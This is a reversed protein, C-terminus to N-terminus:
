IVLPYKTVNQKKLIPIIWQYGCFYGVMTEITTSAIIILSHPQILPYILPYLQYSRHNTNMKTPYGLM